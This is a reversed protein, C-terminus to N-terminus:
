ESRYQEVADSVEIDTPMRYHHNFLQWAQCCACGPDFDDCEPGWYDVMQVLPEAIKPVPRRIGRIARPDNPDMIM